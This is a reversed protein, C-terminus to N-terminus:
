QNSEVMSEFRRDGAGAQSGHEASKAAGPTHSIPQQGLISTHKYTTVCSYFPTATETAGGLLRYLIVYM